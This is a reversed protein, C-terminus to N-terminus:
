DRAPPASPHGKAALWDRLEKLEREQAEVIRRAMAKMAEDDGDRVEVRAMEIGHEHHKAMMLAFDVDVDGTMKMKQMDKMGAAMHHHLAKSGAKEGHGAHMDHVPSAKPSPVPQSHGAHQAAAAGAFLFAGVLALPLAARRPLPDCKM